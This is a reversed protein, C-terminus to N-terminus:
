HDSDDHTCRRVLVRNALLELPIGFRDAIARTSAVGSAGESALYQLALLAYDTKKSLRLM